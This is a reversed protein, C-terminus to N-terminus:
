SQCLEEFKKREFPAILYERFNVVELLRNVLPAVLVEFLQQLEEMVLRDNHTFLAILHNILDMRERPYESLWEDYNLQLDYAKDKTFHYLLIFLVLDKGEMQDISLSQFVTKLQYQHVLNITLSLLHEKQAINQGKEAEKVLSLCRSLLEVLRSPFNDPLGATPLLLFYAMVRGLPELNSAYRYISPNRLISMLAPLDAVDNTYTLVLAWYDQQYLNFDRGWAAPHFFNRFYRYHHFDTFQDILYKKDYAFVESDTLASDIIQNFKSTIDYYEVAQDDPKAQVYGGASNAFAEQHALVYQRLIGAFAERIRAFQNRANEIINLSIILKDMAQEDLQGGQPQLLTELYAFFSENDPIRV